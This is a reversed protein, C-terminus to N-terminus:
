ARGAGRGAMFRDFEEQDKARRLQALFDGFERQQADLARREEELRRLVAARHEDFALNGSGRRPLGERLRDPWALPMLSMAPRWTLFTTLLALGIPWWAIFGLIMLPLRWGRLPHDPRLRLGRDRRARRMERRWKRGCGTAPEVQTAPIAATM